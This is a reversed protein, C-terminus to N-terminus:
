KVACRCTLHRFSFGTMGVSDLAIAINPRCVWNMGADCIHWYWDQSDDLREEVPSTSYMWYWNGVTIRKKVLVEVPLWGVGTLQTAHCLTDRFRPSVLKENGALLVDPYHRHKELLFAISSTVRDAVECCDSGLFEQDEVTPVVARGDPLSPTGALVAFHEPGPDSM